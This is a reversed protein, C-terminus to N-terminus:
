ASRLARRQWRGWLELTLLTLAVPVTAPTEHIFFFLLDWACCLTAALLAGAFTDVSAVDFHVAPQQAELKAEQAALAPGAVALVLAVATGFQHRRLKLFAM